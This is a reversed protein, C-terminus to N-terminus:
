FREVYGAATDATPQTYLQIYKKSLHGLRRQLEFENNNTAEALKRGYTHRLIHPHFDELRRPDDERLEANYWGKVREFIYNIAQVDMRGADEPTRAAGTRRISAARLFLARPVSTEDADAAREQELYDALAARAEASLFLNRITRGKGKVQVLQASRANRLQEATVVIKARKDSTTGLVVQDLDLDVVEERRLGAALLVYLIARDRYPRAHGHAQLPGQMKRRTAQYRRGKKEHKNPLRDWLSKMLVIQEDSLTHPSLPPLPLEKVRRCPNDAPFLQPSQAAIWACCKSLSALHNNVTAPAFACEETLFDDRFALVDRQLCVSIHDHSYRGEFFTIFRELHLTIKDTVDADRIGRVVLDLYVDFWATLSDPLATLQQQLAQRNKRTMIQDLHVISKAPTEM